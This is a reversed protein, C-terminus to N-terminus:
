PTLKRPNEVYDENGVITAISDHVTFIPLFPNEFAIRKAAKEVIVLSEIRQLIHSLVTHNTTKLLRFIQYVEPFYNKFALKTKAEPQGIFRNHSFFVLFMMTKMLSKEYPLNPAILNSIGRYFDGSNVLDIYNSFAIGSQNVDSEVIMINYRINNIIRNINNNGILQIATQFQYINIYDPNNEYFTSNLLLQSFLPQSNKIDINVLRHGNYTIFSRLEKKINAINSHFRGINDDVNYYFEHLEFKKIAVLSKYRKTTRSPQGKIKGRIAGTLPPFLEDVKKRAEIGDINLHKNFWKTLYKYNEETSVSDQQKGAYEKKIKKRVVFDVIPIEVLGRSDNKFSLCYGFSKKGPIYKDRRILRWQLYKIYKKYQHNFEQLRNGQLNVFGENNDIDEFDTAESITDIIYYFYDIKYKFDPPYKKLITPLEIGEPIIWCMTQINPMVWENSFM